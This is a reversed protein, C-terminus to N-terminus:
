NAGSSGKILDVVNRTHEGCLNKGCNGRRWGLVFCGLGLCMFVCWVLTTKAESETASSSNSDLPSINLIKMENTMTVNM